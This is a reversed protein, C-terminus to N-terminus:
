THGEARKVEAIIQRGRESAKWQEFEARNLVSRDGDLSIEVGARECERLLVFEPIEANSAAGRVTILGRAKRSLVQNYTERNYRKNEKAWRRQYANAEERKAGHRRARRAMWGRRTEPIKIGLLPDNHCIRCRGTFGNPTSPNPYFYESTLPLLRKCNPCRKAPYIRGDGMIRIPMGGDQCGRKFASLLNKYDPNDPQSGILERFNVGAEQWDFFDKRLAIQYGKYRIALEDSTPANIQVIRRLGEFIGANELRYRASSRDYVLRCLLVERIRRMDNELAKDLAKQTQGIQGDAAIIEIISERSIEGYLLASVLRMCRRMVVWSSKRTGAM